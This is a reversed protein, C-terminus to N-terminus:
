EKLSDKQSRLSRGVFYTIGLIILTSVLGVTISAVVNGELGPIEYNPVPPPWVYSESAGFSRAIEELTESSLSLWVSGVVVFVISITVGIILLKRCESM